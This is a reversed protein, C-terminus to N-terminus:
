WLPVWTYPSKRMVFLEMGSLPPTIVLISVQVSHSPSLIQSKVLLSIGYDTSLTQISHEGLKFTFM